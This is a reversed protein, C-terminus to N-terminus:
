RASDAPDGLPSLHDLVRLLFDPPRPLKVRSRGLAREYRQGLALLLNQKIVLLPALVEQAAKKKRPGQPPWFYIVRQRGQTSRPEEVDLERSRYKQLGGPSDMNMQYLARLYAIDTVTLAKAKKDAACDPALLNSISALDRCVDFSKTRALALMAIYDAIPGIELDGIKTMDVVVSVVTFESRFGKGLRSGKVTAGCADDLGWSGCNGFGIDDPTLTGNLDATATAYWSQIPHSFTALGKAQAFYHFGLLWSAKARVADM